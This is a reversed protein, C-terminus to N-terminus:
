ITLFVPEPISLLIFYIRPPIRPLKPISNKDQLVTGKRLMTHWINFLAFEFLSIFYMCAHASLYNHIVHLSNKKVCAINQIGIVNYTCNKATKSVKCLHKVPQVKIQGPNCNRIRFSCM